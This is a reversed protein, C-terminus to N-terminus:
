GSNPFGITQLGITYLIYRIYLGIYLCSAFPLLGIGAMGPRNGRPDRIGYRFPGERPIGPLQGHAPHLRTVSPYGMGYPVWIPGPQNEYNYQGFFLEGHVTSIM